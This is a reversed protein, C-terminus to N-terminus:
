LKVSNISIEFFNVIQMQKCLGNVIFQSSIYRFSDIDCQSHTFFRLRHMSITFQEM